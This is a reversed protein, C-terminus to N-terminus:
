DKSAVEVARSGTLAETDTEKICQNTNNRFAIVPGTNVTYKAVAHRTASAM